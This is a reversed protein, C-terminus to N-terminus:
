ALQRQIKIYQGLIQILCLALKRLRFPHQLRILVVESSIGKRFITVLQNFYWIEAHLMLAGHSVSVAERVAVHPAVPGARADAQAEVENDNVLAPVLPEAVADRGGIRRIHPNM